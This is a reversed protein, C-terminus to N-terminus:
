PYARLRHALALALEVGGVGGGIVVVKPQARGEELATLFADLAPLFEGFPKVPAFGGGAAGIPASSSGIDLSLVDFPLAGRESLLVRKADLDLGIAADVIFRAGARRALRVLDLVHEELAYHGAVVGPLMGTYPTTPQPSILTLRAGPLPKMAWMRMALAHAHGGGVLVLDQALPAASHIM